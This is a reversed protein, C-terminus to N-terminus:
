PGGEGPLQGPENYKGLFLLNEVIEAKAVLSEGILMKGSGNGDGLVAPDGTNNVVYLSFKPPWGLHGGCNNGAPELWSGYANVGSTGNNNTYANLPTVKNNGIEFLPCFGISFDSGTLGLGMPHSADFLELSTDDSSIVNTLEGGYKGSGDPQVVIYGTYTFTIVDHWGMGYKGGTFGHRQRMDTYSLAGNIIIQYSAPFRPIFSRQTGDFWLNDPGLFDNVSDRGGGLFARFEFWPYNTMSVPSTGNWHDPYWVDPMGDGDADTSVTIEEKSYTWHGFFDLSSSQATGPQNKMYGKSDIESGIQIRYEGPSDYTPPSHHISAPYFNGDEFARLLVGGASSSRQGYLYSYSERGQAVCFVPVPIPAKGWEKDAPPPDAWLPGNDNFPWVYQKILNSSGNLIVSHHGHHIVNSHYEGWVDYPPHAVSTPHTVKGGGLISSGHSSSIVNDQGGLISSYLSNHALIDRNSNTISNGLGGVIHSTQVGCEPAGIWSSPLFWPALKAPAGAPAPGEHPVQNIANRFGGFIGAGIVDASRQDSAITNETGGVIINFGTGTFGGATSIANIENNLGGFIQNHEVKGEVGGINSKISAVVYNCEGKPSGGTVHSGYGGIVGSSNAPSDPCVLGGGAPFNLSIFEKGISLPNSPTGHGLIVCSDSDLIISGAGGVIISQTGIVTSNNGGVIASNTGTLSNETGGSILSFDSGSNIVNEQGGSISSYKANVQNKLGGSINSYNGTVSNNEGLTADGGGGCIVAYDAEAINGQGGSVTTYEGNATNDSGGGVTSSIGSATNDSGGLISTYSDEAENGSGGGITIHGSGLNSTAKNSVGGGIAHGDGTAINGKGGLVSSETGEVTNNEGGGIISHASDSTIENGITSGGGAIVSSDGLVVNNAGGGITSSSGGVNNNFGGVISAHDGAAVNAEGGGVFSKINQAKNRDGGSVASAEEYAHNGHGGSVSSGEGIALNLNGGSVVAKEGSAVNSEGGSVVSSIGTAENNKGGSVTSDSASAISDKGLAVSHEGRNSNDWQDSSVSGARFASKSKDFQLRSDGDTGSDLDDLSSSGVVFDYGTNTGWVNAIDEYAPPDAADNWTKDRQKILRHQSFDGAPNEDEQFVFDARIHRLDLYYYKDGTDPDVSYEPIASEVHVSNYVTRKTVAEDGLNQNQLQSTVHQVLHVKPAHGDGHQGTHVHGRVRPDDEDLAEGDASGYLGGFISNAFDATVVTVASKFKTLKIDSDTAM